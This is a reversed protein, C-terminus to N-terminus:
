PIKLNWSKKQQYLLPTIIQGQSSGKHIQFLIAVRMNKSEELCNSHDWEMTM